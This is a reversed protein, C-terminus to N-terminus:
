RRVLLPRRRRLTRRPLFTRLLVGRVERDALGAWPRLLLARLAARRTEPRQVLAHCAAATRKLLGYRASRRLSVELNDISALHSEAVRILGAATAEWSVNGPWVRYKAVVCKDYVIRWERSLRLYLDWDEYADLNEAYGGVSKFASARILTASTYLACFGALADYTTGLEEGRRLLFEHQATAREQVRGDSDIVEMRGHVLGIRPDEFRRALFPIRDPLMEDDSDLFALLPFRAEGAGANRAAGASGFGGGLLRVSGGFRMLRTMTDDTSADDVVIVEGVGRASLASAVAREVMSGRNRTPIIVSAKTESNM